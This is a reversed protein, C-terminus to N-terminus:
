FRAFTGSLGHEDTGLQRQAAAGSRQAEDARVANGGSRLRAHTRQRSFIGVAPQMDDVNGRHPTGAITRRRAFGDVSAVRLSGLVLRVLQNPRTSPNYPSTLKGPVNNTAIASVEVAFASM